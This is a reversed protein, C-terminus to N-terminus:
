GRELGRLRDWDTVARDCQDIEWRAAHVYHAVVDDGLATRLWDSRDAADTAARLTAPVVALGEAAYANGTTEPELPLAREIGDLGAALLAACALYPNLDAGGIRCEVRVAPGDAGCVRFGATRNDGSWVVRTPAFTGPSFRKYSNIWPALFLTIDRAHALQGALYHQMLRSMGHPGSPDFFVARGDDALLSQHVHASSGARDTAYKAMFTVSVGQAHAIDKTATKAIVHHDACALADAYRLNLEYQGAEAEAKTAEIPIGAGHLGNRLARMLPEDKTTQFIHYDANYASIPTLNAGGAAQMAAYSERFVYFELETAMMPVLGMASARAIQRKLIARPSVAVEAGTAPNVLDCIVLATGDLWPLPRLTSLDPRLEYDGYGQEWGAEAYGPVPTMEMDVTLLYNCCHGGKWGSDLFHAAHLRKGMLRGQMDVAAVIVTDLRGADLAAQLDELTMPPRM